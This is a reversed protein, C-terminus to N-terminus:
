DNSQYIVTKSHHIIALIVALVPVALMMGIIGFVKGGVVLSFIIVIPHIRVSKGLIYPSLLNSEIVQILVISLLVFWVLHVSTTATILVAPVAGIIPGFYPIINAIGMSIALLLAYEIGIIKYAAFSAIMVFLSIIFQGRIYKGLRDDISKGLAYVSPRYKKPILKRITQKITTFDKLYYFVLVPILMLVFIFDVLKTLGGIVRGISQEVALEIKMILQEISEHIPIPLTATSDDINRMINEYMQTYIPLQDSLDRLQVIIKPYLLYIGYTTSSLFLLYILLIAIAKHIHQNYMWKVLPHLLYAIFSAILFPLIISGVFAFAKKYYPFLIVLLFIFLFVFIGAVIWSLFRQLQINKMQPFVETISHGWFLFVQSQNSPM